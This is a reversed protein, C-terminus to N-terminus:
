TYTTASTGSTIGKEVAWRVPANYYADASVDVFPAKNAQAALATQLQNM